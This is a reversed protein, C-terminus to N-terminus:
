GGIVSRDEELAEAIERVMIPYTVSNWANGFHTSLLNIAAPDETEIIFFIKLPSNGIVEYREITKCNQQFLKDRGKKIWEAREHNIDARSVDEKADFVSLYWM